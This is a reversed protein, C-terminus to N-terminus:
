RPVARQAQRRGPDDAPYAYRRTSQPRPGVLTAGLAKLALASSRLATAVPVKIEVCLREWMGPNLVEKPGGSIVLGDWGHREILENAQRILAETKGRVDWLSEGADAEQVFTFEVDKPVCPRFSDLHPSSPATSGLFGIKVRNM